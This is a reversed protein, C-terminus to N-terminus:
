GCRGSSERRARFEPFRALRRAALRYSRRSQPVFTEGRLAYVTRSVVVPGETGRYSAVSQVVRRPSNLCGVVFSTVVTGGLVFTGAPGASHPIKLRVLRGHVISYPAVSITSAGADVAVLAALRRRPGLRALRELAPAEPTPWDLNADPQTLRARAVGARSGRVTLFFRCGGRGRSAVIGVDDRSGDGDVDGRLV